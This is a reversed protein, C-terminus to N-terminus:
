ECKRRISKKTFTKAIVSKNAAHKTEKGLDYM